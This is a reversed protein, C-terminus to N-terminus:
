PTEPPGCRFVCIAFLFGSDSSDSAQIGFPLHARLLLALFSLRLGFAEGTRIGRKENRYIARDHVWIWNGDKKQIRYEVDYSKNREILADFAARVKERDDHHIRGFWLKQGAAYIEQPTFGLMKEVYDSVFNIRQSSEDPEGWAEWVVGPVNSM